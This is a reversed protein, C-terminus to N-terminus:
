PTSMASMRTLHPESSTSAAYPSNVMVQSLSIRRKLLDQNETTLDSLELYPVRAMREEKRSIRRALRLLM